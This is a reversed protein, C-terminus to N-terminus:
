QPLTFPKTRKSAATNSCKTSLVSGLTLALHNCYHAKMLAITWINISMTGPGDERLGIKQSLLSEMLRLVTIHKGETLCVLPITKM